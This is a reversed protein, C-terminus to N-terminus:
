SIQNRLLSVQPFRPRISERRVGNSSIRFKLGRQLSTQLVRNRFVKCIILPVARCLLWPSLDLLLNMWCAKGRHGYVSCWLRVEQTFEMQWLVIRVHSFYPETSCFGPYQRWKTVAVFKLMTFLFIM